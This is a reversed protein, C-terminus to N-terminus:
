LSIKIINNKPRKIYNSKLDLIKDIFDSQAEEKQNLHSNVDLNIISVNKFKPKLSM